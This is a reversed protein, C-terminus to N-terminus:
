VHSPYCEPLAAPTQARPVEIRKPLPLASSEARRNSQAPDEELTTEGGVEWGAGLGRKHGAGQLAAQVPGAETSKEGAARLDRWAQSESDESCRTWLSRMRRLLAVGSGGERPLWAGPAM